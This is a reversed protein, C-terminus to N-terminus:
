EEPGSIVLELGTNGTHSPKQASSSFLLRARQTDFSYGRGARNVAKAMSDLVGSYGHLIPYDFYALIEERWDRLATLLEGFSRQLASSEVAVVWIELATIAEQKPRDYLAYLEKKLQLALNGFRKYAKDASLDLIRLVHSKDIVVPTMPLMTNAVKSYPSGIDTVVGLMSSRDEFRSLWDTLAQEGRNPLVDIPMNCGADILICRMAGAIYIDGIGLWNPLYPQYNDVLEAIYRDAINRITKEDCGIDKSLSSFSEQLCRAEIHRVCRQTMRRTPEIGALSQLSTGGCERCKYRQVTAVLQTHAGRRPSDRYKAVKTGHRYLKGMVRCKSCAQLPLTYEAEITLTGADLRSAQVNWGPLDVFDTM